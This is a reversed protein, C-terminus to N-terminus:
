SAPDGSRFRPNVITNFISGFTFSMGVRLDYTFDTALQRLELLIEDDTADGRALSLQDRVRSYRAEANFSLGRTIRLDLEGSVGFRNQSFDNLYSQAELEFEAQGWPQVVDLALVAFHRPRTERLKQFVTEETYNASYLGVGYTLTVFRRTSEAYPYLSLELVASTRVLLDLNSRTSHRLNAQVGLSTRDGLSRGVLINTSADRAVRVIEEGDSLTFRSRERTGSAYLDLKWEQTVREASVFGQIESSSSQSEGEFSSNGGVEFVWNNWADHPLAGAAPAGAEPPDYTVRLRAAVPANAVYRVLGLKLVEVFQRRQADESDTARSTFQLEQDQGLFAGLGIFRLTVRDGTAADQETILLHVDADQPSRVYDVWPIETRVFDGPCGFQCDLFLRLPATNGAAPAQAALAGATAILLLFLTLRRLIKEPRLTPGTMM